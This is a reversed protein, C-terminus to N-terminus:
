QRNPLYYDVTYAFKEKLYLYLLTTSTIGDVDYDGFVIIKENNDIAEIIRDVAKDMDKLLFPDNLDDLTGYLFDNIEKEGTIGRKSLVNLLVPSLGKLNTNIKEDTLFWKKQM